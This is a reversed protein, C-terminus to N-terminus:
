TTTADEARLAALGDSGYKCCFPSGTTCSHCSMGPTFGGCCLTKCDSRCEEIRRGDLAVYAQVRVQVLIDRRTIAYAFNVGDRGDDEEERYVWGEM